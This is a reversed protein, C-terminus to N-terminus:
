VEGLYIAGYLFLVYAILMRSPIVVKIRHELLAPLFMAALGSPMAAAYPRLRKQGPKLSFQKRSM